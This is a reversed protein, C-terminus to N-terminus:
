GVNVKTMNVRNQKAERTLCINLLVLSIARLKCPQRALEAPIPLSTM